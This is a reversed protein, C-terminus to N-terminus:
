YLLQEDKERELNNILHLLHLIPKNDVHYSAKITNTTTPEQNELDPRSPSFGSPFEQKWKKQSSFDINPSSHVRPSMDALDCHELCQVSEINDDIIDVRRRM